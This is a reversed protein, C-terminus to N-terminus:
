FKHEEKSKKCGDKGRRLLGNADLSCECKNANSLSVGGDRHVEKKEKRPKLIELSIGVVSLVSIMVDFKIAQGKEWEYFSALRIGTLKSLNSKCGAKEEALKLLDKQNMLPEKKNEM